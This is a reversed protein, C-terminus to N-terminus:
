LFSGGSVCAMYRWNQEEPPRFCVRYHGCWRPHRQFSKLFTPFRCISYTMNSKSLLFFFALIWHKWFPSSKFWAGLKHNLDNCSIFTLSRSSYWEKHVRDRLLGETIAEIQDTPIHHHFHIFGTTFAGVHNTDPSPIFRPWGGGCICIPQKSDTVQHSLSVVRVM